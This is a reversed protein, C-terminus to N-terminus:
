DYNIVLKFGYYIGSTTYNSIDKCVKILQM